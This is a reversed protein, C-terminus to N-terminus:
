LSRRSRLFSLYVISRLFPPLLFITARLFIIIIATPINNFKYKILFKQLAIESIVYKIGGRHGIMREGTTAKVLPQNINKFKYKAAKLKIWLGYDGKLFLEPYGGVSDVASKKFGVTMHNIPNRFPIRKEIEGDNLPVKRTAIYNGLEDFEDIYSGVVDYKELLFPLQIEFRNELNLDDGDARFIYEYKCKSLGVNLAKDLGIKKRVM